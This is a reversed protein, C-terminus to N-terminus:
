KQDMNEQIRVSYPSKRLLYIPFYLFYLGFIPFHPGSIVKYKSVKWATINKGAPSKWTIENTVCKESGARLLHERSFINQFYAAIKCSVDMGFHSKLLKISIVSKNLDCKMMPTRKYIKQMNQSCRKRLTHQKGLPRRYKQLFFKRFYGPFLNRFFGLINEHQLIKDYKKQFIYMLWDIRSLHRSLLM